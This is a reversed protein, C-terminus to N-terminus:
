NVGCYNAVDQAQEAPVNMAAVAFAEYELLLVLDTAGNERYVETIRAIADSGIIEQALGTPSKYVPALEHDYNTGSMCDQIMHQAEHRLTDLDNATWEVVPGGPVGNDQCVVLVRPKGAYFGMLGEEKGCYAPNVYCSLGHRKIANVLLVHADSSGEKVEGITPTAFSASAFGLAALGTLATAAITKFFTM